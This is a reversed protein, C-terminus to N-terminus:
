ELQAMRQKNCRPSIASQAKRWLDSVIDQVFRISIEFRKVCLSDPNSCGSEIDPRFGHRSIISLMRTSASPDLFHLTCVVCGQRSIRFMGCRRRSMQTPAGHSSWFRHMYVSVICTTYAHVAFSLCGMTKEPSCPFLKPVNSSKFHISEVRTATVGSIPSAAMVVCSILMRDQVVCTVYPHLYTECDYVYLANCLHM